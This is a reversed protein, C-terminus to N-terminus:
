GAECAELCQSLVAQGQSGPCIDDYADEETIYVGPAKEQRRKGSAEPAGSGQPDLAQWQKEEDARCSLIAADNADLCKQECLWQQTQDQASTASVVLVTSVFYALLRLAFGCEVISKIM